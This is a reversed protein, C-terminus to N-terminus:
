QTHCSQCWSWLTATRSSCLNSTRFVDFYYWFYRIAIPACRRSKKRWDDAKMFNHLSTKRPVNLVWSWFCTGSQIIDRGWSLVNKARWQKCWASKEAAANQAGFLHHLLHPLNFSKGISQVTKPHKLTKYGRGHRCFAGFSLESRICYRKWPNWVNGTTLNLAHPLRQMPKCRPSVFVDFPGANTQPLSITPDRHDLFQQLSPIMPYTQQFSHDMQINRHFAQQVITWM